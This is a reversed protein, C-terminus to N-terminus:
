ELAGKVVRVSREAAGYKAPNYPPVLTHRIENERIFRAFEDSTFQAGNDSVLQEPLGHEAFILRLEAITCDTTISTMLNADIWKSHSDILVLFYDKGTQCFNYDSQVPWSPM